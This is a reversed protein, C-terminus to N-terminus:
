STFMSQYCNDFNLMYGKVQSSEIKFIDFTTHKKKHAMTEEATGFTKGCKVGDVKVSCTKHSKMHKEFSRADSLCSGCVSCEGGSRSKTPGHAKWPQGEEHVRCWLDWVQLNAVFEHCEDQIIIRWDHIWHYQHPPQGRFLGSCQNRLVQVAGLIFLLFICVSMEVMEVM